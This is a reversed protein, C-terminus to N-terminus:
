KVKNEPTELLKSCKVGTRFRPTKNAFMKLFEILSRSYPLLPFPLNKSSGNLDNPKIILTGNQPYTNNDRLHFTVMLDFKSQICYNVVTILSHPM